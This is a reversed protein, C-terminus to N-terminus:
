AIIAQSPFKVSVPIVPNADDFNRTRWMSPHIPHRPSTKSRSFQVGFVRFRPCLIRFGLGSSDPVRFWPFAILLNSVLQLHGLNPQVM